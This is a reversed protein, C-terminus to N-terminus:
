LDGARAFHALALADRRDTKIRDGPKRPIMTPAIVECRYGRACLQRALGYGCPGAEYVILLQPPTGCHSLAKEVEALVSGTTGLFRPAARGPVAVAIAISDKHVDLGIFATTVESMTQRRHSTCIVSVPTRYTARCVETRLGRYSPLCVGQMWKVVAEALVAPAM